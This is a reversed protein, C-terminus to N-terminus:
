LIKKNCTYIKIDSVKAFDCDTTIITNAGSLITATTHIADRPMLGYDKMVKLAKLSQEATIEILILNPIELILLTDEEIKEIFQKFKNKNEKLFNFWNTDRKEKKELYKLALVKLLIYWIEDLGLNSLLLITGSEELKKSYKLCENHFKADLVLFNIFFSPDIYAVKPPLDLFSFIRKQM